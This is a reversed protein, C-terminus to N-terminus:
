YSHLNLKQSLEDLPVEISDIGAEVRRQGAVLTQGLDLPLLNGVGDVM